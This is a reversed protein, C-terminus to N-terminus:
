WPIIKRLGKKKKSTSEKKKDNKKDDKKADDPKSPDSGSAAKAGPQSPDTKPQNEAGPASPQPGSNSGSTAGGTAAPSGPPTSGPSGPTVTEVVVGTGGTGSGGASGVSMKNGSAAVVETGASTESPPTLTPTGTRAAMSVDPRTRLVSSTARKFLGPRDHDLDRERQLRALAAPDPQPVPVGLKTLRGKADVVLDSLPYERVIRSYYRAAFEGKESREYVNALMWLAKDAQSYLPYRNTLELLRAAAARNSGKVYYFHAIRYDGEALVEQVDRLRQEAEAALKHQPYKQLFTQFEEEALRGDTRDRDPKEMQRYHAMGVQMQAYAAEDLFPFFIIFDKYESISQKLGASGGEKYYSDAVALKAKALYESDPYTNILTQLTLRGVAHRGHKIDDLAREYLVKDPEASSGIGQQATKKKGFCGGLLLTALLLAGLSKWHHRTVFGAGM